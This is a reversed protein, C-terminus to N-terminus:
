AIVAQSRYIADAQLLKGSPDHLFNTLGHLEFGAQRCIFDLEAFLACGRYHEVFLVEIQMYKTKRLSHLAGALLAREAGQVDAKLLDIRDIKHDKCVDDLTTVTVDIETKGSMDAGYASSMEPNMELLSSSQAAHSITFRARGKTEALAAQVVEAGPLHLERLKAAEEPIPEVMITRRLPFYLSARRAFLGNHAGVDVLTEVERPDCWSFERWAAVYERDLVRHLPAGAGRLSALADESLGLIRDVISRKM